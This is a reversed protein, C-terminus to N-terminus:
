TIFGFHPSIKSKLLTFENYDYNNYGLKVTISAFSYFDIVIYLFIVEKRWFKQESKYNVNM